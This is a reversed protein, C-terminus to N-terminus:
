TSLKKAGTPNTSFYTEVHEVHKMWDPHARKLKAVRETTTRRLGVTTMPGKGARNKKPKFNQLLHAAQAYFSKGKPSKKRLHETIALLFFTEWMAAPRGRGPKLAAFGYEYIIDGCPSAKVTNSIEDLKGRAEEDKERDAKKFKSEFEAFVKDRVEGFKEAMVLLSKGPWHPPDRKINAQYDAWQSLLSPGALTRADDRLADVISEAVRLTEMYVDFAFSQFLPRYLELFVPWEIGRDTKKSRSFTAQSLSDNTSAFFVALKLVYDLDAGLVHLQKLPRYLPHSLKQFGFKRSWWDDYSGHNKM